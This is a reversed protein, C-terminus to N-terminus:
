FAAVERWTMSIIASIATTLANISVACGEGVVIAGDVNDLIYPPNIQSAAVPGGVSRIVTPAAPLTTASYVIGAGTATRGIVAPHVTLLTNTAPVAANPNSNAAYIITAAGAPATTCAITTQLIVLNKGSGAPNYLTFGTQTTSLAVSTAQGAQNCASYVEDQGDTVYTQKSM